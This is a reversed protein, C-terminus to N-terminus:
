AAIRGESRALLTALDVRLAAAITLAEPVTIEIKGALRRGVQDVTMGVSDALAKTSLQQRAMEARMEALLGATNPPQNM